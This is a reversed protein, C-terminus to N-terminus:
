DDVLAQCRIMQHIWPVLDKSGMSNWKQDGNVWVNHKAVTFENVSWRICWFCQVSNKSPCLDDIVYPFLLWWIGVDASVSTKQVGVITSSNQWCTWVQHAFVKFSDRWGLFNKLGVIAAGPLNELWCSCFNYSAVLDSKEPFLVDLRGFLWHTTASYWDGAEFLTKFFNLSFSCLFCFKVVKCLNCRELAALSYLRLRGCWGPVLM